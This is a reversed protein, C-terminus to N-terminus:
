KMEAVNNVTKWGNNLCYRVIENRVNFHNNQLWSANRDSGVSNGTQPDTCWLNMKHSPHPPVFTNINGHKQALYSFMIDEGSEWSFPKEYWLYKTWEQRFFWAHGVLDVRIIKDDRVGNWGVKTFPSYAKTNLIVGTGGLIGNSDPREITDMCNKLWDVQPRVDDDFLAIFPTKILLPLTFRGFFKTNWNCIYTKIEPNVPHNQGVDSKNYWVHINEPKIPISQNLIAEIQTELMHPRKYVNLIVSIDNM